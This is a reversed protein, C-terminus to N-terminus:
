RQSRLEHRLMRVDDDDTRSADAAGYEIVKCPAAHTTEADVTKGAAVIAAARVPM